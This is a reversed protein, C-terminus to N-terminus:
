QFPCKNIPALLKAL